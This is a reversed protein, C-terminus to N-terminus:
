YSNDDSEYHGDQDAVYYEGFDNYYECGDQYEDYSNEQHYYEVFDDQRVPPQYPLTKAYAELMSKMAYNGAYDSVSKGQHDIANFNTLSPVSLFYKVVEVNNRYTASILPTSGNVNPMNWELGIKDYAGILLQAIAENEAYDLACNGYVDVEMLHTLSPLDVLYQITEANGLITANILLTGNTENDYNANWLLNAKAFAEVLVQVCNLHNAKIACNIAEFEDIQGTLTQMTLFYSIVQFHGHTAAQMLPSKRKRKSSIWDLKLKNHVKILYRVCKLDGLITAEHLADTINSFDQTSPKKPILYQLLSLHGFKASLSLPTHGNETINSICVVLDYDKVCKLCGSMCAIFYFPKLNPLSLSDSQKQTKKFEEICNSVVRSFDNLDIKKQNYKFIASKLKYWQAKMVTVSNIDPCPIEKADLLDGCECEEDIEFETKQNSLDNQSQSKRKEISHKAKLSVELQAIIEQLASREDPDENWGSSICNALQTPVFCPLPPKPNEDLALFDGLTKFNQFPYSLGSLIEYIVVSLSFYDAREDYKGSTLTKPDMYALTGVGRTKSAGMTLTTCERSAGFDSLKARYYGYEEFILINKPKLDRHIIKKSHLFSLGKTIHLCLRYALLSSGSFSQEGLLDALSGKNALEMVMGIANDHVYFGYAEVIFENKLKDLLEFEAKIKELQSESPNRTLHYIKMASKSKQYSCTVVYGFSGSGLNDKQNFEVSDKPLRYFLTDLKM